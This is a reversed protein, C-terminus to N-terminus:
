FCDGRGLRSLGARDGPGWTLRGNNEASMLEGDDDVHDLGVLHGFEHDLIAQLQAEGAPRTLLRGSTDADITVTGTVYRTRGLETVSTSGGLGAVNGALGPVEDEHAWTVLVPSWGQGYRTPDTAKRDESPRETTGGVIELRLGTLKAISDISAQVMEVHQEPAYTPNVVVEITRCPDYAVPARDDGPQTALFAYTGDGAGLLPVQSLPDPGLGVLTRAYQADPHLLLTAGMVLATFALGLATGSSRRPGRARPLPAHPSSGVGYAADVRDLEALRRLMARKRRRREWAALPGRGEM